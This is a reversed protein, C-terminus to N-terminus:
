PGKRGKRDRGGAHEVGGWGEVRLVISQGGTVCCYRCSILPLLDNVVKEVLLATVGSSLVHDSLQVSDLIPRPLARNPRHRKPQSATGNLHHVRPSTTVVEITISNDETRRRPLRIDHNDSTCESVLHSRGQTFHVVLHGFWSVNNRHARAGVTTAVVVVGVRHYSTYVTNDGNIDVDRAAGRSSFSQQVSTQLQLLFDHAILVQKVPPSLLKRLIKDILYYALPPRSHSVVFGWLM